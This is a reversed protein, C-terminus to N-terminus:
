SIISVPMYALFPGKHAELPAPLTGPGREERISRDWGPAAGRMATASQLSVDLRRSALHL